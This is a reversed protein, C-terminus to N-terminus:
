ANKKLYRALDVDKPLHPLKGDLWDRLLQSMLPAQLVGKTGLGNLIVLRPFDPHRGLIPCRNPTTPRIAARAATTEFPLTVQERVLNELTEIGEATSEDDEFHLEYTSGATYHHDGKPILFTKRLLIQDTGIGPAMTLDIIQGKLPRLPVFNFWPNGTVGMGEAFVVEDYLRRKGEIVVMGTAPDLDAYDFEAQQYDLQFRERLTAVIGTCLADVEVWGCAVIRLGGIPNHILDPLLPQGEHQALWAFDPEQLRVMWDNYSQGSAFPRFIPMFHVWQRLHAFEAQALFAHLAALLEDAMWTKNAERGTIVNFLGAAVRSASKPRYADIMTVRHGRVASAAAMFCGALGGGVILIEKSAAM